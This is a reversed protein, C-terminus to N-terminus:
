QLASADDRKGTVEVPTKFISRRIVGVRWVYLQKLRRQNQQRFPRISIAQSNLDKRRTPNPCLTPPTPQWREDMLMTILVQTVRPSKHCDCLARMRRLIFATSEVFACVGVPRVEFRV